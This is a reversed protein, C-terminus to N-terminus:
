DARELRSTAELAHYNQLETSVLYKADFIRQRVRGFWDRAHDMWILALRVGLVIHYCYMLVAARLFEHDEPICMLVLSQGVTEPFILYLVIVELSPAIISKWARRHANMDLLMDLVSGHAPTRIAAFEQYLGRFLLDTQVLRFVVKTVILGLFWCDALLFVVPVMIAGASHSQLPLLLRLLLAGIGLPFLVLAVVSMFFFSITCYMLHLCRQNQVTSVRTRIASVSHALKAVGFVVSSLFVVGLSLPLFDSVRKAQPSVGVRLLFRGVSLPVSLLLAFSVWSLSVLLSAAVLLERTGPKHQHSSVRPPQVLPASSISAQVRVALAFGVQRDAAGGAGEVALAADSGTTRSSVSSLSSSPAAAVVPASVAAQGGTCHTLPSVSSSSATTPFAPSTASRAIVREVQSSTNSRQLDESQSRLLRPSGGIVGCPAFSCNSGSVDAVICQHGDDAATVAAEAMPPVSPSVVSSAPYALDTPGEDRAFEAPRCSSQPALSSTECPPITQDEPLAAVVVNERSRIDGDGLLLSSDIQTQTHDQGPASSAQLLQQGHTLVAADEQFGLRRLAVRLWRAVLNSFGHCADLTRLCQLALFYLQFMEVSLFQQGASDGSSGGSASLGLMDLGSSASTGGVDAGVRKGRVRGIALFSIGDRANSSRKVAADTGAEVWSGARRDVLHFPFLADGLAVNLFQAPLYWLVFALPTQFVVHVLVFKLVASEPVLVTSGSVRDEALRAVMDTAGTGFVRRFSCLAGSFFNAFPLRMAAPTCIEEFCSELFGVGWLHLYGILLQMALTLPLNSNALTARMQQPMHLVPGCLLCMVVHGMYCPLVVLQLLHSALTLSKSWSSRIAGWVQAAGSFACERILDLGRSSYGCAFCVALVGPLSILSFAAIGLYGIAISLFGWSLRQAVPLSSHSQIPADIFVPLLIRLSLRGIYFPIALFLCMGMVNACLFTIMCLFARTPDEQLGLVEWLDEESELTDDYEVGYALPQSNPPQVVLDGGVALDGPPSESAVAGDEILLQTGSDTTPAYVPEIVVIFGRLAGVLYIFSVGSLSLCEGLFLFTTFPLADPSEIWPLQPAQGTFMMGAASVTLIPLAVAWLMLAYVIRLTRGSLAIMSTGLASVWDSITLRRPANEAYVRVFEFQHGCLECVMRSSDQSQLWARLCAEHIWKISGACRCPCNLRGAEEGQRCIRCSIEDEGDADGHLAALTTQGAENM